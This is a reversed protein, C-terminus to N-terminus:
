KEGELGGDIEVDRLISDVSVKEEFEKGGKGGIRKVAGGCVCKKEARCRRRRCRRKRVRGGEIKLENKERKV